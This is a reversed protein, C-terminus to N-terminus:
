VSRVPPNVDPEELVIDISIESEELDPIDIENKPANEAAEQAMVKAIYRLM